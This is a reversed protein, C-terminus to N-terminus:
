RWGAEQQTADYPISIRLHGEHITGITSGNSCPAGGQLRLDVVFLVISFCSEGCLVLSFVNGVLHTLNDDFAVDPTAASPM